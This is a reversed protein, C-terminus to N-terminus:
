KKLHIQLGFGISLSCALNNIIFYGITPSVNISSGKSSNTSGSPNTSESSTNYYNAYGGLMWNGKTIQANATITFLLIAIVTKLIKM